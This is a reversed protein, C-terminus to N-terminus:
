IYNKKELLLRCVLDLGTEHARLPTYSVAAAVQRVAQQVDLSGSEVAAFFASVLGASACGRTTLAACLGGRVGGGGTEHVGIDGGVRSRM